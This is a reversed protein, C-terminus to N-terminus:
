QILRRGAPFTADMAGADIWIPGPHIPYEGVKTKEQIRLSANEAQLALAKLAPTACAQTEIHGIQDVVFLQPTPATEQAEKWVSKGVLPVKRPLAVVLSFRV